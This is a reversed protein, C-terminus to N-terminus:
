PETVVLLDVLSDRESAAPYYHLFGDHCDWDHIIDEVFVSRNHSISVNQVDTITYPQGSEMDYKTFLHKENLITYLKVIRKGELGLDKLSIKSGVKIQRLIHKM